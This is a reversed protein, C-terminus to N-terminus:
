EMNATIKRLRIKWTFGSEVFIRKATIGIFGLPFCVSCALGSAVLLENINMNNQYVVEMSRGYKDVDYIDM